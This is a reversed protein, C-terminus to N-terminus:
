FSITNIPVSSSSSRMVAISSSANTYFFYRKGFVSKNEGGAHISVQMRYLKTRAKNWGLVQVIGAADQEVGIKKLEEDTLTLMQAKKVANTGVRDNLRFHFPVSVWCPVRKGGREAPKWTTAFMAKLAASDFLKVDSYEVFSRPSVSGDPMVLARVTVKGELGLKKPVEPYVVKKMVDSMEVFPEKDTDVEVLDYPAPLSDVVGQNSAQTPIATSPVSALLVHGFKKVPLVFVKTQASTQASKLSQESLQVSPKQASPADISTNQPSQWLLTIAVIASTLLSFMIWGKRPITFLFRGFGRPIVHAYLGGTRAHAIERQRRQGLLKEALVSSVDDKRLPPEARRAREFHENLNSMIPTAAQHLDKEDKM